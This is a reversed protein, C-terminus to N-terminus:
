SIRDRYAFGKIQMLYMFLLITFSGGMSLALWGFGFPAGCFSIGVIAAIKVNRLLAASKLLQEMSMAKTETLFIM